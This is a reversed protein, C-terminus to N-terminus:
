GLYKLYLETVIVVQVVFWLDTPPEYSPLKWVWEKALQM